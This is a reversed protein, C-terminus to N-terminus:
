HDKWPYWTNGVHMRTKILTDNMSFAMQVAIDSYPVYFVVLMYYPFSPQTGSAYDRQIWYCGNELKTDINGNIEDKSLNNQLKNCTLLTFRQNDYTLRMIYANHYGAYMLIDYMGDENICTAIGKSTLIVIGNTIETMVEASAFFVFGGFSSLELLKAYM